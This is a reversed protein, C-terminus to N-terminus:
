IGAPKKAIVSWAALWTQPQYADAKKELQGTLVMRLTNNIIGFFYTTALMPDISRIEGARIGSQVIKYIKVFAPMEQIPKADPLFEGTRLILLFQMIDPAEDTLKFFLDVIGRLQESPKPTKRRIDDISVSLCDFIYEHLTVAIAQKHAYHQYVANITALGAQDAIDTLSTNFYGQEAFLKLAALLIKDATEVPTESLIQTDLEQEM